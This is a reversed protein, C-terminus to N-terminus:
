VELASIIQELSGLGAFNVAISIVIRAFADKNILGSENLLSRNYPTMESFITDILFMENKSSLSLLESISEMKQASIIYFAPSNHNLVCTVDGSVVSMPNKKLESISTINNSLTKHLM